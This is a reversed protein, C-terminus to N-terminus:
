EDSDEESSWSEANWSQGRTWGGDTTTKDSNVGVSVAILDAADITQAECFPATYKKM